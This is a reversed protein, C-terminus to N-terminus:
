FKTKKKPSSHEGYSEDDMNHKLSKVEEDIAEKMFRLHKYRKNNLKGM